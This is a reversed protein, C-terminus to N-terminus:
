EAQHPYHEELEGQQRPGEPEQEAPVSQEQGQGPDGGGLDDLALDGGVPHHGDEHHGGGREDHADHGVDDHPHGVLGDGADVPAGQEGVILLRQQGGVGLHEVVNPDQVGDDPRELLDGQGGHDAHGYGDGRRDEEVLDAPPPDRMTRVTTVAMLPVGDITAPTNM